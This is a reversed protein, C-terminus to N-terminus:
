RLTLNCLVADEEREFGVVLCEHDAEAEYYLSWRGGIVDLDLVRQCTGVISGGGIPVRVINELGMMTMTDEFLYAEEILGPPCFQMYTAMMDGTPEPTRMWHVRSVTRRKGM